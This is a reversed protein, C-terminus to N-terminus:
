EEFIINLKTNPTVEYLTPAATNAVVYATNNQPNFALGIPDLLETNSADTTKPYIQNASTSRSFPTGKTNSLDSDLSLIRAATTGDGFLFLYRHHFPDFEFGHVDQWDYLGGGGIVDATNLNISSGTPLMYAGQDNLYQVNKPFAMLKWDAGTKTLVIVEDPMAPNFTIGRADDVLSSLPFSHVLKGDSSIKVIWYESDTTDEFLAYIANDSDMTVSVASITSHALGAIDEKRLVVPFGNVTQYVKNTNISYAPYDPHGPRMKFIYLGQTNGASSNAVVVLEGSRYDFHPDNFSLDTGGAVEANTDIPVKYTVSGGSFDTVAVTTDLLWMDDLSWSRRAMSFAQVRDPSTDKNPRTVMNGLRFLAGPLSFAANGFRATVDNSRIMLATADESKLAADSPLTDCHLGKCFSWLGNAANAQTFYLSDNGVVSGVGVWNPNTTLDTCPAAAPRTTRYCNLDSEANLEVREIVYRGAVPERYRYGLRKISQNRSDWYAFFVSQNEDFDTLSDTPLFETAHGIEDSLRMMFRKSELASLADFSLDRSRQATKVPLSVLPLVIIAFIVLSIILENLTFGQKSSTKISRFGFIGTHKLSNADAHPTSDPNARNLMADSRNLVTSRPIFHPSLVQKKFTDVRIPGASPYTFGDM